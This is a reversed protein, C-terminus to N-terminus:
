PVWMRDRYALTIPAGGAEPTAVIRFDLVERPLFDFTGVYSIRGDDVAPRMEISRRVGALDTASAQVTARVNVKHGGTTKELVVDLVARTPAPDIGHAKATAASFTQSAVTSSRLVFPGSRREHAQAWAQQTWALSLVLAVVLRLVAILVAHKRMPLMAISGVSPKVVFATCDTYGIRM